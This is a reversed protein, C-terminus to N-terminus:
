GRLVWRALDGLRAGKGQLLIGIRFIRGAAWVCLLTTLLVGVTGVAPQWWPVAPSVAQRAIMLMPTAFPFFSLGTVVSGNPESLVAGLLWMPFIVLVMVPWMLTQTEKMDTCAAGVAIFLSGYMFAALAQFAIFWALLGASIFDSGGYRAAAWWAGGLYVATITLSVATMGLLKGLMLDFPRVSALLVEAIRQMKEEVVVQMLPTATMLVMMFMLIMFLMPAFLAAFRSEERADEVSAGDAALVSLGKSELVMPQVAFKVKDAPLGAAKMRKDRVFDELAKRARNAFDQEIVRNSQYRVVAHEPKGPPTLSAAEPGIELVGALEGKRVQESLKLRLEDVEKPDNAPVDEVIIEYRPQIAVGTKDSTEKENYNEIAKRLPALLESGPTRDIVAFVKKRTDRYDKLLYQVLAGGGMLVPMIILSLVFAKTQVAARYERLAVVFIKRV